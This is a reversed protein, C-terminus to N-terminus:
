RRYCYVGGGGVDECVHGGNATGRDEWRDGLFSRRWDAGVAEAPRDPDAAEAAPRVCFRTDWGAVARYATGGTNWVYAVDREPNRLVLGSYVDYESNICEGTGPLLIISGM